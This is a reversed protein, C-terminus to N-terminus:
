HLLLFHARTTAELAAIEFATEDAHEGPGEEVDDGNDAINVPQAVSNAASEEAPPQEDNCQEAEPLRDELHANEEFPDHGDISTVDTRNGDSCADTHDEDLQDAADATTSTFTVINVPIFLDDSVVPADLLM